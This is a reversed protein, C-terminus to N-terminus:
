HQKSGIPHVSSSSSTSEHIRPKRHTGNRAEETKCGSAFRWLLHDVSFDPRKKRQALGKEPILSALQQHLYHPYIFLQLITPQTGQHTELNNGHSRQYSAMDWLAHRIKESVQTPVTGIWCDLSSTVDRRHAQLLANIIRNLNVNQDTAWSLIQRQSYLTRKQHSSKRTGPMKYPQEVAYPIRCGSPVHHVDQVAEQKFMYSVTSPM